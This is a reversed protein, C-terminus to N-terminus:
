PAMCMCTLWYHVVQMMCLCACLPLHWDSVLTGHVHMDALLSCGADQMHTDALTKCSNCAHLTSRENRMAILRCLFYNRMMLGSNAWVNWAGVTTVCRYGCLESDDLIAQIFMETLWLAHSM